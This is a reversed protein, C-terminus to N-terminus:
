QCSVSQCGPAMGDIWQRILDTGRRTSSMVPSPRCRGRGRRNMRLYLTSQASAGPAIIQAGSVGLDGSTPAVSCANTSGIATAFRLDLTVPTGGGPRHCQACNTHLYSRARTAVSQSTDAPDPYAPMAAPANVFMGIEELTSLQNANRGTSPYTISSNLQRTELGLSGGAGSTHCQLCEAESPYRWDQSGITETLGGSVLEADTHAANWRYTYGGWNGSDPHRMFLRTEILTGNLTFNKMLVTGPPFTWDGDAEVTIRTGEPLAMWRTKSAGDSWFQAVPTYPILADAPQQPNAASVCGTQSLLPKIPNPLDTGPM